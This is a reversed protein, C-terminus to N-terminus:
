KPVRNTPDPLEVDVVSPSGPIDFKTERSRIERGDKVEYSHVYYRGPVMRM